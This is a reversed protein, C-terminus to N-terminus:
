IWWNYETLQDCSPKALSPEALSCRVLLTQPTQDHTEQPLDRTKQPTATEADM